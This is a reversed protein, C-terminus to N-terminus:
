MKRNKLHFKESNKKFISIKISAFLARFTFHHRPPVQVGGNTGIYIASMVEFVKPSGASSCIYIGTYVDFVLTAMRLVYLLAM